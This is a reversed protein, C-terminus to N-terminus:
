PVQFFAHVFPIYFIYFLQHWCLYYKIISIGYQMKMGAPDFWTVSSVFNINSAFDLHAQIYAVLFGWTDNNQM